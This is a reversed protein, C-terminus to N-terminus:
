EHSRDRPEVGEFYLFFTILRWNGAYSHWIQMRGACQMSSSGGDYLDLPWFSLRMGQRPQLLYSSSAISAPYGSVGPDYM